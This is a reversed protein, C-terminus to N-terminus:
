EICNRFDEDSAFPTQVRIDKVKDPLKILCDGNGLLKEAGSHGLCLVSERTNATKFIIKTPTNAQILGSVVAVRPSQTCLICHIGAARGLQCLSVLKSEIKTKRETLMLDALEDIILVWKPFLGINKELGRRQLEEYRNYMEKQFTNLLTIASIDDNVVKLCHAARSWYNLSRKKDIIACKVKNPSNTTLLSYLFSKLFVSKGSGTTGAILAHTMEDLSINVQGGDENIGAIFKYTDDAPLALEFLPVISYNDEAHYIAFHSINSDIYNFQHEAYLSLRDLSTKRRGATVKNWDTFDFYYITNRPTQKMEKFVCPLGFVTLAQALQEGNYM